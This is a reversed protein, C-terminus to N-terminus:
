NADARADAYERVVTDMAQGIPAFTVGDGGEVRGGSELLALDRTRAELSEKAWTTTEVQSRRVTAAYSNFYVIIVAVVAVVSSVTVLFAIGLFTTNVNSAHESQPLGEVQAHIHWPDLPEDHHEPLYEPHHSM